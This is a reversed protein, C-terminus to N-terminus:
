TCNSFCNARCFKVASPFSLTPSCCQTVGGAASFGNGAGWPALSRSSNPYGAAKSQERGGDGLQPGFQPMVLEPGSVSPPLSPVLGEASTSPVRESSGEGAAGGRQGEGQAAGPGVGWRGTGGAGAGEVCAGGPSPELEPLGAM